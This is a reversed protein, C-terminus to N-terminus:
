RDLNIEDLEQVKKSLNKVERLKKSNILIIM